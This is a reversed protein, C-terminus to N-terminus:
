YKRKKKSMPKGSKGRPRGIGCLKACGPSKQDGALKLRWGVSIGVPLWM